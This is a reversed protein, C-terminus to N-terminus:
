VDTRGRVVEEVVEPKIMQGQEKEVFLINGMEVGTERGAM